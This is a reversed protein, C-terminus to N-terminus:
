GFIAQLEDFCLQFLLFRPTMYLFLPMYIERLWKVINPYKFHNQIQNQVQIEYGSIKYM